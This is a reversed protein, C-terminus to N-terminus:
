SISTLRQTEGVKDILDKKRDSKSNIKRKLKISKNSHKVKLSKHGYRCSLILIMTFSFIFLITVITDGKWIENWTQTNNNKYNVYCDSNHDICNWKYKNENTLTNGIFCWYKYDDGCYMKSEGNVSIDWSIDMDNWSNRTYFTLKNHTIRQLYSRTQQISCTPQNTISEYYPCYLTVDDCGDYQTNTHCLLNLHTSHRTDIWAQKCAYDQKCQINTKQLYPGNIKTYALAYKGNGIINCESNRACIITTSQCSYHNTCKITCGSVTTPCIFTSNSCGYQNSCTFSCDEYKANCQLIKNQCNTTANCVIEESINQKFLLMICTLFLILMNKTNAVM